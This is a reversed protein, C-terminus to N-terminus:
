NILYHNKPLFDLKTTLYLLFSECFIKETGTVNTRVVMIGGSNSENFTRGILLYGRDPIQVLTEAKDWGLGKYEKTWLITGNVDIKVM